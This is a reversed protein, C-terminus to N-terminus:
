VINWCGKFLELIFSAGISPRILTMYRSHMGHQKVIRRPHAIINTRSTKSTKTTDILIMDIIQLMRQMGNMENHLYQIPCEMFDMDGELKNRFFLFNFFPNPRATLMAMSPLINPSTGKKITLM